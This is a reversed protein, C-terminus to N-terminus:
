QELPNWYKELVFHIATITDGVQKNDLTLQLTWGPGLFVDNLPVYVPTNTNWESVTHAHDWQFVTATTNATYVATSSNRIPTIARGTIYDLSFLRNAVNADTTLTATCSIVRVFDANFQGVPVSFNAGAAPSAPDHFDLWGVDATFPSTVGRSSTM